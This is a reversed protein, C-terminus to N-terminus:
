ALNLETPISDLDYYQHSVSDERVTVIRLGSSDDGLQCGVASTVVVELDGDWGGANRHYHGCFLARMGAGRLRSLFARRLAKDQFNFSLADNGPVAVKDEDPSRVFPPIHQLGILHKRPQGPLIPLEEDLWDDQARRLAKTRSDDHYYQSNLVLFKCGGVWFSFYDDGFDSRYADIAEPTPVDGIDHNGCVCVAAIAPDLAVLLGKLDRIQASKAEVGPMADVLDGCVVFFRPRPRLRNVATVAKQLLQLEEEWMAEGKSRFSHIMGLQTDAAQVWVFPGRWEGESSWSLGSFGGSEARVRWEEASRSLATSGQLRGMSGPVRGEEGM